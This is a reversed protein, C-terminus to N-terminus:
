RVTGRGVEDLNLFVSRAQDVDGKRGKLFGRMGLSMAEQSGTLLVHLDFHELKGGFRDALALAVAVGSANDNAGPVPGALATDILVPLALILLVTPIFQIMTLIPSDIGPVRALVCVLLLVMAWFLPQLPGIERRLLRGITARREQLTANFALGGRGSDYHAVLYLDGPKDGDERSIVNQSARRGFLRRTIFALGIADLFTFVVAILVLLAGIVPITVSLVSGVVALTVHVAYTVPWNPWSDFSELEAERGREDLREALHGAARREADTGPGRGEIAVLQEIEERTGEM